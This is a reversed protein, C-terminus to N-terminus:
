RFMLPLSIVVVLRNSRRKAIDSMELIADKVRMFYKPQHYYYYNDM